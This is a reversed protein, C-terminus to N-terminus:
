NTDVRRKIEETLRTIITQTRAQSSQVWEEDTVQTPLVTTPHRDVAVTERTSKTAIMSTMISLHPSLTDITNTQGAKLAETQPINVAVVEETAEISTIFLLM